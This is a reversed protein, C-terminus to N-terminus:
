LAFFWFVTLAISEKLKYYLEDKFSLRLDSSSVEAKINYFRCIEKVRALHYADSVIIVNGINKKTLIQKKIYEIQEATSVTKKELWVDSLNVDLLKIYDFAVEAESLEGPANSGTLQIKNVIGEHYLEVAKDVRAALSPSPANYSWVASGLVVAINRSNKSFKYEKVDYKKLNIFVFSFVLLFFLLALSNVIGRLIILDKMGFSIMWLTIMFVFQVFQFLVFMLGIFIENLPHDLLYVNPLSLKIKTSLFALLLLITLAIIYSLVFFKNYNTKRKYTYFLLGLFTLLTFVLNFLNGIYFINFNSFSLNQNNYKIFYLFLLDLFLVVSVFFTVVFRNKLYLIRLGM